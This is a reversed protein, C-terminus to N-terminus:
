QSAGGPVGGLLDLFHRVTVIRAGAHRQISLLDAKDGSVLIDADGAEVMALLFNDWPDRSVEVAPLRDLMITVVKLENIFRGILPPSLRDRIKPYRTVRRLEELQEVSTVLDFRGQRWLAVLAGPLSYPRLLASVFVNSDIVVRM